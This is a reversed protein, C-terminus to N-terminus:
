TRSLNREDEEAQREVANCIYANASMRKQRALAQVREWLDREIRLQTKTRRDQETNAEPMTVPM